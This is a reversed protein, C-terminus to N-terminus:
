EAETKCTETYNSVAGRLLEIEGFFDPDFQLYGHIAKISHLVTCRDRCIYKAITEHNLGSMYYMLYCIVQRVIVYKHERSKSFVMDPNQGYFDCTAEIIIEPPVRDKEKYIKFAFKHEALGHRAMIKRAATTIEDRIDM